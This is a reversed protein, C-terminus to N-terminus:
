QPGELICPYVLIKARKQARSFALNPLFDARKHAWSFAPTLCGSRMKDGKNPVGSFVITIYSIQGRKPRLSPMPSAAVELNTGKTASGRSRLPKYLLEARKQAGTFARNLCGNRIKEGKNRDGSFALTVYCNRGSTPGGSPHPSAAM